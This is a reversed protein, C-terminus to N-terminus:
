LSIQRTIIKQHSIATLYQLRQTLFDVMSTLIMRDLAQFQALLRNVVTEPLNPEINAIM